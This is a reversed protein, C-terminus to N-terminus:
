AFSLIDCQLDTVTGSKESLKLLIIQRCASILRSCSASHTAAPLNLYFAM